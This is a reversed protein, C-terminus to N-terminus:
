RYTDVAGLHYKYTCQFRWFDGEHLGLLTKGAKQAKVLQDYQVLEIRGEEMRIKSEVDDRSMTEPLDLRWNLDGSFFLHTTEYINSFSASSGDTSPFLLTEAIHKYDAIRAEVKPTHATLHANVFTFVEGADESDPHNKLRFRIGVAGKNGMWGPGCGTWQTQVDSVYRGITDDRGYVLLAM